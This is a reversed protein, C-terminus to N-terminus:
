HAVEANGRYSSALPPYRGMADVVRSRHAHVSRSAHRTATRDRLLRCECAIRCGASAFSIGAAEVWARFNDNACIVAEHGAAKLALALALLPQVDGRTGVTVIAVRM